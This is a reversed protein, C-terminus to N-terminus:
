AAKAGNRLLGIAQEAGMALAVARKGLADPLEPDSLNIRVLRAGPHQHVLQEMRWRVVSPTNFGAGIEIVLLRATAAERLWQRFRQAQEVYPEEVFGADIRVNMFVAGGCRPCRPIAEPDSVEQTVPDLATLCREIVPRTPWTERTCPKRCQLLAYDGQPTFLRAEDFGNRPFLRDVNSTLVFTDRDQVLGQLAQYAVREDESFAVHKVHTSWYGWHQAPTLGTHGILQYQARFGRRVFAPFLRAFTATDGYDIGAAASMGAGAGILVRESEHIWRRAQEIPASM